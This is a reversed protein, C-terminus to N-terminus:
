FAPVIRISSKERDEDAAMQFQYEYETKLEQRRASDVPLKQSLFYALGAIVANLFRFPVDVNASAGGSDQIRRLRWCVLTYENTDPVPWVTVVPADTRREVVLQVPRGRQNKSPMSTYVSLSVRSVSLDSQNLGTGIRIAHDTLDVTDAPLQYSAQGQVLPVVLEDLTWLNYGRNAWEQFLLNLSRRATKYDYGSRVEQGCREFAEEIIEAVDLNFSATGSTAM